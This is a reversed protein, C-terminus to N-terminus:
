LVIYINIKQNGDDYVCTYDFIFVAASLEHISQKLIQNSSKLVKNFLSILM